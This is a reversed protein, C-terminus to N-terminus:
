RMKVSETENNMAGFDDDSQFYGLSAGLYNTEEFVKVQCASYGRGSNIRDDWDFRLSPWQWDVDLHELDSDCGYSAEMLLSAGGYGSGDYFVANVTTASQADLEAVVVPNMLAEASSVDTVRGDTLDTVLHDVDQFCRYEGSDLNLICSEGSPPNGVQSELMVGFASGPLLQVTGFSFAVM